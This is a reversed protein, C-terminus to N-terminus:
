CYRATKSPPSMSEDSDEKAIASQEWDDPPENSASAGFDINPLTYVAETEDHVNEEMQCGDDPSLLSHLYQKKRTADTEDAVVNFRIDKAEPQFSRLFEVLEMSSAHSSYCVFLLNKRGESWFPDDRKLNRWKRASPRILLVHKPNAKEIRCSIEGRVTKGNCAHVRTSMRDDTFVDKLMEFHNYTARQAEYIHIRHHLHTYLQRFLEETGYTAAPWLSVINRQDAELWQTCIAIIRNISEQRTPFYMYERELFTSDLYIIGPQIRDQKIVAMSDASPRFDGTYLVRVTKTEFYFMVSGPCHEAPVTRVCLEYTSEGTPATILLTIRESSPLLYVTEKPYRHGIIVASHPSMYLTGPLPQSTSLGEMHDAHCHSLFFVRARDRVTEDFRDIGIGPLEPIYGPFTSM